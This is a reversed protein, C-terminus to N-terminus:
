GKNNIKEIETNKTVLTTTNCLPQMAEVSIQTPKPKNSAFCSFVKVIVGPAVIGGISM